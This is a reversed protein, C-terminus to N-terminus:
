LNNLIRFYISKCNIHQAKSVPSAYPQSEISPIGVILTGNDTLSNSLAKILEDIEKLEMM